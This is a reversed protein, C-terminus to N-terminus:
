SRSFSGKAGTAINRRSDSVKAQLRQLHALDKANANGGSGGAKGSAAAINAQLIFDGGPLDDDSGSDLSSAIEGSSMQFEAVAEAEAESMMATTTTMSGGSGAKKIQQAVSKLYQTKEAPSQFILNANPGLQQNTPGTKKIVEARTFFDNTKEESQLNEAEIEQEGTETQVKVTFKKREQFDRDDQVKKLDKLLEKPMYKSLDPSDTKIFNHNSLLWDNLQDPYETLASMTEALSTLLEKLRTELIVQGCFPCLNKEIAHKWKPNIETECSVCKM